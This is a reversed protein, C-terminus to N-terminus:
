KQGQSTKGSAVNAKAQAAEVAAKMADTAKNVSVRVPDINLRAYIATTAVNRHGLSKGIVHLSAGTAAQWSGLTRRLDHMRVGTLKARKLINEWPKRPEEIHGSKGISPFVWPNNAERHGLREKLIVVADVPLHVLIAQGAKAKEDPIRWTSGSLDLEDWKMAKVNGSRAGTLLLLRFYDQWMKPTQEDDLATLFRPLEDAGLFRDRSTETFREVGECPNGGEFGLTRAKNFMASILAVVRNATAVAHDKALKRHLAAVDARALKAIPRHELAPKIHKNYRVEDDRWSRKRPKAHNTLFWDWLGGVTMGATRALRKQEMPDVGSAIQATTAAALRRAQEISIGPFGGLRVRQPRGNVKRYLYFGKAGNDTVMLALGPTKTDYVYSRNRGSACTTRELTAVTFGIKRPMPRSSKGAIRMIPDAM